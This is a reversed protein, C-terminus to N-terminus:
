PKLALTKYFREKADRPFLPPFALSVVYVDTNPVMWADVNPQLFVYTAGAM